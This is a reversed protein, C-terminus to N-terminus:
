KKMRRFDQIVKEHNCVGNIIPKISFEKIKDCHFEKCEYCKNVDPNGTIVIENFSSEKARNM